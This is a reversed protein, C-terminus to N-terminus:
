MKRGEQAGKEERSEEVRRELAKREEKREEVVTIWVRRGWKGGSEEGMDHKKRDEVRREM